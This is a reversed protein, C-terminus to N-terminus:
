DLVFHIQNTANSSLPCMPTWVIILGGIWSISNFHNFIRVYVWHPPSVCVFCFRRCSNYRNIELKDAAIKCITRFVCLYLSKKKGLELLLPPSRLDWLASRVSPLNITIVTSHPLLFFDCEMSQISTLVCYLLIHKQEYTWHKCGSFNFCMKIFIHRHMCNWAGPLRTTM